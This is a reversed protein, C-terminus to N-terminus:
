QTNFNWCKVRELSSDTWESFCNKLKYEKGDFEYNEVYGGYPAENFFMKLNRYGKTKGNQLEFLMASKHFLLRNYKGDKQEYIMQPCNDKAGCVSISRLKVVYEPNNDDNLEIQKIRLDRSCDYFDYVVSNIPLEKQIEKEKLFNFWFTRHQEDKCVFRYGEFSEIESSDEESLLKGTKSKSNNETTEVKEIILPQENIKWYFKFVVFSGIGFAL